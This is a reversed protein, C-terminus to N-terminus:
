YFGIASAPQNSFSVAPQFTSYTPTGNLSTASVVVGPAHLVEVSHVRCSTSLAILTERAFGLKEAKM